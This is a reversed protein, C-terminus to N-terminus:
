GLVVANHNAAWHSITEQEKPTVEGTFVWTRTLRGNSYLQAIGFRLEQRTDTTTETDFILTLRDNPGLKERPEPKKRLKVPEEVVRLFVPFEETPGTQM